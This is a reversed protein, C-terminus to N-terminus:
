RLVRVGGECLPDVLFKRLIVVEKRIVLESVHSSSIRSVGKVLYAGKRQKAEKERLM